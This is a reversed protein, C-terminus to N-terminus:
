AGGRRDDAGKRAFLRWAGLGLVADYMAARMIRGYLRWRRPEIPLALSMVEDVILRRSSDFRRRRKRPANKLAWAPNPTRRAAPSLSSVKVM